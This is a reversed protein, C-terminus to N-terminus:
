QDSKGVLAPRPAGASLYPFIAEYCILPAVQPVGDAQLRAHPAGNAYGGRQQTLQRLGIAALVPRLPLYEGFPVLHHKDMRGFLRGQTDFLM